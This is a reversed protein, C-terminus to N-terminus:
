AAAARLRWWRTVLVAAGAAVAILGFEPSSGFLAENLRRGPMLTLIGPIGVAWWYLNKMHAKHTTVKGARADRLAQYLWYLVLVSLVHIPGFPGVITRENIFFSSLAAVVLCGAWIYGMAKHLRDRTRRYISIPGLFVTALAAYVHLQVPLPASLIPDFSM